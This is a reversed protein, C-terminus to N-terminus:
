VARAAFDLRDGASTRQEPARPFQELAEGVAIFQQLLDVQRKREAAAEAVEAVLQFLEGLRVQRQGGAVVKLQRLAADAKVVAEDHEVVVEVLCPDDGGAEALLAVAIAVAGLGGGVKPAPLEARSALRGIVPRRKALRRRRLDGRRHRAVVVAGAHPPDDVVDPLAVNVLGVERM